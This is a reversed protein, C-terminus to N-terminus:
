PKGTFYYIGDWHWLGKSDISIHVVAHFGTLTGTGKWFTCIGNSERADFQCYGSATNGHWADIKINSALFYANSLVPGLYWIKVHVHIQKLNSAAVTCYTPAIGTDTSCDKTIHLEHTTSSAEVSPAFATLALIAGAVMAVMRASHM